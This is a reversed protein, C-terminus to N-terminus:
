DPDLLAVLPLVEALYAVLLQGVRSPLFRAIVKHQRTIAQSKHYATVLLV